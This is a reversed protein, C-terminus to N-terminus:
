NQKKNETEIYLDIDNSIEATDNAYSCFIVVFKIEIIKSENLKM